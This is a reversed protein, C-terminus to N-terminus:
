GKMLRRHKSCQMIWAGRAEVGQMKCAADAVRRRDPLRTCAKSQMLTTPPVPHHFPPRCSLSTPHNHHRLHRDHPTIVKSPHPLPPLSPQTHSPSPPYPQALAPPSTRHQRHHQQSPKPDSWGRGRGDDGFRHRSCPTHTSPPAKLMSGLTAAKLMLPNSLLPRTCCPRTCIHRM